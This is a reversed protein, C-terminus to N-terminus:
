LEQELPRVTLEDMVLHAPLSLAGGSREAAAELAPLSRVDATFAQAKGGVRGIGAAVSEFDDANRALLGVTAGAGSLARAVAAGHGRGAGTVVAVRGQLPKESV